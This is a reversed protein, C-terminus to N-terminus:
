KGGKFVYRLNLGFGNTAFDTSEIILFSPRWDVGFAIPTRKFHYELGIEGVAGFLFDSGVGVFPGVGVYWNFDEGGLPKYLFDWLADIGVHDNGFSLDAHIRSFKGASFVGDIAYDGARANGFRLGLEQANVANFALGCIIGITFILRRKM